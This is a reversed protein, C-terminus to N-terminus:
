DKVTTHEAIWRMDRWSDGAQKSPLVGAGYTVPAKITNGVWKHIESHGDAFSFGCAGNHFSAPFDVIWEGANVPDNPQSGKCAVAIAADNISDPHEDVFVFTKAPIKVAGLKQYIRFPGPSSQQPPGNLWEGNGFTQSMSLSRVRPRQIGAYMVTTRDAPCKFITPSKGAYNWLPSNALNVRYDWHSSTIPSGIYVNGDVWNPRGGPSNNMAAVVYDNFDGAYLIFGLTLQKTNSMCQIGQAKSKAKALAPLLMAALIAIIAIVVLLEILTFGQARPPRGDNRVRRSVPSFCNPKMPQINLAKTKLLM